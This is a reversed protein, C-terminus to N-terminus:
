IKENQNEFRIYPIKLKQDENKYTDNNLILSYPLDTFEEFPVKGGMAFKAIEHSFSNRKIKGRLM